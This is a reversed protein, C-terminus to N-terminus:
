STTKGKYVRPGKRILLIYIILFNCTPDQINARWTAMDWDGFRHKKIKSPLLFKTTM